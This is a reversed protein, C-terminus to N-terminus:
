RRRQFSQSSRTSGQRIAGHHPRQNCGPLTSCKTVFYAYHSTHLLPVKKETLDEAVQEQLGKRIAKASITELDATALINDIIVSYSARQDLPVLPLDAPRLWILHCYIM